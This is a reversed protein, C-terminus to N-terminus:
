PKIRPTGNPDIFRSGPPLKNYGADDTIKVVPSEAATAFVPKGAALRQKAFATAKQIVSDPPFKGESTAKLTQEVEARTLTPVLSPVDINKGNINVGVSYESAVKGDPTKLLGLFGMGKKTGDPRAEWNSQDVTAMDARLDSVDLANARVQNAATNLAQGPTQLFSQVHGPTLVYDPNGPTLLARPDKGAKRYADIKGDLELNFAYAAEEIKEPQTDSLMRGVMGAKMVRVATNRVNNVDRLFVNGEPTRSREIEKGMWDYDSRNLQTNGNADPAFFPALQTVSRIKDPANEDAHIRNFLSQVVAPNSRVNEGMATRANHTLLGLIGQQDREDLLTFADRAGPISFLEQTTTPTIGNMGVSAKILEGHAQKQVGEQMAVITAVRGKVNQVVMDRYNPDNPRTENAIREANGIWTGLQARTDRVRQPNGAGFSVPIVNSTAAAPVPESGLKTIRAETDSIEQSISRRDNQDNTPAALEKRLIALRKQDRDIQVAPTVVSAEGGAAMMADFGAHTQKGGPARNGIIDVSAVRQDGADGSVTLAGALKQDDAVTMAKDADRKAEVPMVAIKLEHELVVRTQANLSSKVQNYLAQAALPDTNMVSKVRMSNAQDVAQQKAQVIVPNDPKMGNRQGYGDILANARYIATQFDAENGGAVGASQIEIKVGADTTNKDYVESEQAVHRTINERLQLGAVEARRQFLKKQYDNDLTSAIGAAASDFQGGYTKMIPQNVADGGKLNAFGEKGYTMDVQRERLKNYADEARLTDQRDKMVAFTEASNQIENGSKSLESSVAGELGTAGAYSAVGQPVRPTPTEGFSQMDPLKAM